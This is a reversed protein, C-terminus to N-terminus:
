GGVIYKLKEFQEKTVVDKINNSKFYAECFGMNSDRDVIVGIRKTERRDVSNFYTVDFGDVRYGNVYDGVEILDVINYSAKVIEELWDERFISDNCARDESRDIIKDLYYEKPRTKFKSMGIIKFIEGYETRIYMNIKLKEM